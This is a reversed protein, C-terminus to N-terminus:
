KLLLDKEQAEQRDMKLEKVRGKIDAQEENDSAGESSDNDQVVLMTISERFNKEHVLAEEIQTAWM